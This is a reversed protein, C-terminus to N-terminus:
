IVSSALILGLVLLIPAYIKDLKKLRAMKKEKHM